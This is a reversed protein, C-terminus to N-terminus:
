SRSRTNDEENTESGLDNVTTTSNTWSSDGMLSGTLEMTGTANATTTTKTSDETFEVIVSESQQVDQSSRLKAM